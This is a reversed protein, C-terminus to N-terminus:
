LFNLVYVDSLLRLINLQLQGPFISWTQRDTLKHILQVHSLDINENTRLKGGKGERGLNIANLSVHRLQVGRQM